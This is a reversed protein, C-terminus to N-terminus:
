TVHVATADWWGYEEGLGSLEDAIVDALRERTSDTADLGHEARFADEQEATMTIRVHM